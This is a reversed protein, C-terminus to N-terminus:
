AEFAYCSLANSTSRCCSTTLLHERDYRNLPDAKVTM